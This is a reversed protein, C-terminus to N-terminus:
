GFIKGIIASLEREDTTLGTGSSPKIPSVTDTMLSGDLTVLAVERLHDSMKDQPVRSGDGDIINLKGKTDKKFQYHSM